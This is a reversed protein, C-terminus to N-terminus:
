ALDLVYKHAHVKHVCYLPCAVPSCLLVGVEARDAAVDKGDWEHSVSREKRLVWWSVASM